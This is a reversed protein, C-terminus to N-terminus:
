ALLRFSDVRPLIPRPELRPDPPRVDPLRRLTFVQGAREVLEVAELLQRNRTAMAADIGRGDVWRRRPSDDDVPTAV